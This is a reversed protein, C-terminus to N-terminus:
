KTMKAFTGDWDAPPPLAKYIALRDLFLKYLPAPRIFVLEKLLTEAAAFERQQYLAFVREFSALEERKEESPQGTGLLEYIIVPSEKGSVRVKDVVRCIFDRGLRGRTSETVLISSSYVKNLDELRSAINVNDGMVTYNKRQESGMNGAFMMGSNIGCGVAIRPLGRNTWGVQLEELKELMDLAAHAADKAHDPNDTPANWFAMMGDGIFKDVTGMNQMVIDSMPTFYENLFRALDPAMMRESLTTFGRIDTFLVTMNRHEGQLSSLQDPHQELYGLISPSVNLAFAKRIFRRERGVSLYNAAILVALVGATSLVPITVGVDVGRSFFFLYNVVFSGAICLGAAAVGAGVDGAVIALTVFLGSVLIFALRWLHDNRYSNVFFDRKLMASLMAAHAAVLSVEPDQLGSSAIYSVAPSAGGILVLANRFAGDHLGALVEWAPYVTFSDAQNRFFTKMEGLESVPISLLEEDGDMVAIASVPFRAGADGEGPVPFRVADGRLNIGFRDGGLHVRMMELPLSPVIRGAANKAEEAEPSFASASLYALVPINRVMGTASSFINMFGEGVPPPRGSRIDDITTVAYPSSELLVASDPATRGNPLRVLAPHNNRAHPVRGVHPTNDILAAGLVTPTRTMQLALARDNDFGDPGPEPVSPPIGYRLRFRADYNSLSTKDADPFLIDLGIVDADEATEMLRAIDTRPWPWSAHRVLSEEDIAIVAIRNGAGPRPGRLSLMADQAIDDLAVLARALAHTLSPAPEAPLGGGAGDGAPFPREPPASANNDAIRASLRHDYALYNACLALLTTLVGLVITPFHKTFGSVAGTRKAITRRTYRPARPAPMDVTQDMRRRPRLFFTDASEPPFAVAFRTM